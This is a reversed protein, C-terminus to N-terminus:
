LPTELTFIQSKSLEQHSQSTTAKSAQDAFTEQSGESLSLCTSGRGPAPFFEMEPFLAHLIGPPSTKVAQVSLLVASPQLITLAKKGM